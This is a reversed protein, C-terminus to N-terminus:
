PAPIALGDDACSTHRDFAASNYRYDLHLHPHNPSWEWPEACPRPSLYYAHNRLNTWNAHDPVYIDAADGYVHRSNPAHGPIEANHVPTSYVRNGTTISFATDAHLTELGSSLYSRFIAFDWIDTGHSQIVPWSFHATSPQPSFDGCDPIYHLSQDIYEQRMM